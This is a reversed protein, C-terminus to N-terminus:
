WVPLPDGNVQVIDYLTPCTAEDSSPIDVATTTAVSVLPVAPGGPTPALVYAAANGVSL